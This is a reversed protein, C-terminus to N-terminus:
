AEEFYDSDIKKVSYSHEEAVGIGHGIMLEALRRGDILVVKQHLGAAYVTANENFSSTTIFVGKNAKKGALAGVFGQIEQRGVNAKWRKAPHLRYGSGTPRAQDSRRNRRRWNEAHRCRSGQILGWIEDRRSGGPRGERVPVPGRHAVELALRLRAIRPARCFAAEMREAPSASDENEAPAKKAPIAKPERFDRFEPFQSLLRIDIKSPAEGLVQQGRETIRNRGRGSSAILGARRLYVLAWSVRNEFRSQKGGSLLEKRDEDTLQFQDALREIFRGNTVDEPAAASCIQLAPLM